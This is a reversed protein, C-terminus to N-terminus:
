ADGGLRSAVDDCVGREFRDAAADADAWVIQKLNPDYLTKTRQIQPPLPGTNRSANLRYRAGKPPGGEVALYGARALHKLYDKAHALEAEAAAALDVATFWNLMKIARWLRDTAPTPCESADKRLRPAEIGVDRILTIVQERRPADPNKVSVYGAKELLTLYENATRWHARAKTRILEAQDSELERLAQWIETRGPAAKSAPHRM